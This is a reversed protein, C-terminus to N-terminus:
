RTILAKSEIHYGVLKLASGANRWTFNEIAEGEEFYGKYTTRIFTGSTGTTVFVNTRAAGQSPGLKSHVAAFFKVLDDHSDSNQFSPDSNQLIGEYDGADLQSHFNRVAADSLRAGAIMGSGCQWFLYGFLLAAAVLSWKWLVRKRKPEVPYNELPIPTPQPAPTPAAGEM